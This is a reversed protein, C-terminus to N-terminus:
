VSFNVPPSFLEQGPTLKERREKGLLDLYCEHDDVALVWRQLWEQFRVAQVEDKRLKNMAEPKKERYDEEWEEWNAELKKEKIVKYLVYDGLWFQNQSCFDKFGKSRYSERDQCSTFNKWLLNLKAQKIGYHVHKQGCPFVEKLDGIDEDYTKINVGHLSDFSLYMPDLAITTVADYPTFKFGVDNLPLLQILRLGTEVCWDILLKLDPFEGIGTSSKSYISFLPTAVGARRKVGIREWQKKTPGKLFSKYM